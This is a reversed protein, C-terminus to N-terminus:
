NDQKIPFGLLKFFEISEKKNKSNTAINIQFSFINKVREPVIEPFIIHEKIGLNLNGNKDITRTEIGQFDRTRPLAFNVLHDIFNWMMTGRLTVKIGIELGQRIKFGSIAKKAKTKVPKQGTIERLSQIIEEIKDNEKLIKGTGINLVCKKIKPVEMNNSYGFIKRMEPIVVEKYKIKTPIIKTM